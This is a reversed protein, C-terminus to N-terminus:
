RLNFDIALETLDYVAPDLDTHTFTNANEDWIMLTEFPEMSFGTNVVRGVADLFKQKEADSLANFDELRM